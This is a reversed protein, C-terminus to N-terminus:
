AFLPISRDLEMNTIIHEKSNGWSSSYISKPLLTFKTWPKNSWVLNKLTNM